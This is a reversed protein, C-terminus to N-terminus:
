HRWPQLVKLLREEAAGLEECGLMFDRVNGVRSSRCALKHDLTFALGLARGLTARPSKLVGSLVRRAAGRWADPSRRNTLRELSRGIWYMLRAMYAETLRRAPIRHWAEIAPDFKLPAGSELVTHIMETDGASWLDRGHRDLHFSERRVAERWPELRNRRWWSFAGFPFFAGNQTPTIELADCSGNERVALYLRLREDLWEPWSALEPLRAHIVGGGGGLHPQCAATDAMRRLAQPHPEVDDDCFIVADGNSEDLARARALTLGLRSEEVIRYRPAFASTQFFNEATRLTEDRCANAVVLVDIDHRDLALPLAQDVAALTPLIRRAGQHTCIAITAKM